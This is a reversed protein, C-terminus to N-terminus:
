GAAAFIEDWATESWHSLAIEVASALAQSVSTAPLSEIGGYPAAYESLTIRDFRVQGKDMDFLMVTSVVDDRGHVVDLLDVNVQFVRKRRSGDYPVETIFMQAPFRIRTGRRECVISADYDSTRVGPADEEQGTRGVFHLRFGCRHNPSVDFEGTVDDMIAGDLIPSLVTGYVFGLPAGDRIAAVWPTKPVRGVVELIEGAELRGLRTSGTKPKARINVDKNVLYSGKGVTVTEGLFTMEAAFVQTPQPSIGASLLIAAFIPIM